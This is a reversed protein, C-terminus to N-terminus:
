SVNAYDHYIHGVVQEQKGNWTEEKGYAVVSIPLKANTSADGFNPKYGGKSSGAKMYVTVKEGWQDTFVLKIAKRAMNTTGLATDITKVAKVAAGVAPAASLAPKWTITAGAITDLYVLEPRAAGPLTVELQQGVAFNTGSTLVCGNVTPGSAVTTPAPTAAYTRVHNGSNAAFEVALANYETLVLDISLATGIVACMKNARPFGAELNFETRPADMSLSGPDTVGLYQWGSAAGYATDEDAYYADIVGLKANRLNLLDQALGPM